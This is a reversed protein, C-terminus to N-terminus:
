CATSAAPPRRVEHQIFVGAQADVSVGLRRRPALPRQPTDTRTLHRAHSAALRHARRRREVDFHVAGVAPACARLARGMAVVVVVVAAARM